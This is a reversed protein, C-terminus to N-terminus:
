SAEMEVKCAAVLAYSRDLETLQRWDPISHTIRLLDRGSRLCLAAALVYNFNAKEIRFGRAYGQNSFERLEEESLPEIAQPHQKHLQQCLRIQFESWRQERLLEVVADPLRDPTRSRPGCLEPSVRHLVTGAPQPTVFTLPVEGVTGFARLWQQDSDIGQLLLPLIKPDWFRFFIRGGDPGPMQTFRRLHRWLAELDLDGCIFIGPRADWLHQPRDSRTMLNRLLGSGRTLEVLWPAVGGWVQSADGRFLCRHPLGEGALLLPLDAFKPADLLAFLKRGTTEGDPWIAQELPQPITRIPWIGFQPDLPAFSVFSTDLATKHVARVPSDTAAHRSPSKIM